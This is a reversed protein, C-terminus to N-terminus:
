GNRSAVEHACTGQFAGPNERFLPIHPCFYRLHGVISVISQQMQEETLTGGQWAAIRQQIRRLSRRHNEPKVRIFCPFLRMGLFSLGHSARNLFTAEPRLFLHLQEALAQELIYLLAFLEQKSDGFLVLDDMYRVYGRVGLKDKLLHDVPDLYVNALFQSTLNGIPL